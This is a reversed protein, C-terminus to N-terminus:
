YTARASLTILRAHARRRSGVSRSIERTPIRIGPGTFRQDRTGNVETYTLYFPTIGVQMREARLDARALRRDVTCGPM